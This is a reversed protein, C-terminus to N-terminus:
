ERKEVLEELQDLLDRQAARLLALEYRRPEPFAVEEENILSLELAIERRDSADLDWFRDVIHRVAPDAMLAELRTEPKQVIAGDATPLSTQTSRVKFSQGSLHEGASESPLRSACGEDRVQSNSYDNGILKSSSSSGGPTRCWDTVFRKLQRHQVADVSEIKAISFHDSGPVKYTEGFYRGASFPEVVQKYWIWRFVIFRDETLEKGVVSLRGSEKLNTFERDLDALWDNSRVFRLADAQSHGLLRAAPKLWTAYDSGLSPSALLFLAVEVDLDILDATRTVLYKRAVIGGMSHCVFLIKKANIIGDLKLREKLDDVVDALRYSGSLVGTRYTFVYVGVAQMDQDQAVIDPWFAGNPHRWCSDGNSLIGHIFVVVPAGPSGHKVWKGKM